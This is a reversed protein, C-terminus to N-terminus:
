HFPDEDFVTRTGCTFWGSGGGGGAAQELERADLRRLTERHLTLQKRKRTQTQDQRKM